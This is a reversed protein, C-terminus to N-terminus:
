WLTSDTGSTSAILTASLQGTVTVDHDLPESLFTLVDPRHDVFRQDAMEWTRWDGGPYTPSIPRMRYPVPNAPDSVYERYAGKGDSAGGPVPAKFSLTGDAHLYLKTPKAEKPPWVAYTKWTNSGSQFMTAQWQPKEGKGHLYYRFFPAELNERFERATEHGGFPVLGIKEAKPSQWQGHFWPGAVM